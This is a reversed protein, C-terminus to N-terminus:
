GQFAGSSGTHGPLVRGQLCNRGGGRSGQFLFDGHDERDLGRGSVSHRAPLAAAPHAEPKMGGTGDTGTGGRGMAPGDDETGHRVVTVMHGKRLICSGTVSGGSREFVAGQGTM